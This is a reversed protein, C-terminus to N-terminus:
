GGQSGDSKSKPPLRFPRVEELHQRLYELLVHRRAAGRKGDTPPAAPLVSQDTEEVRRYISEWRHRITDHRIGLEEAIEKDSRGDLAQRLLRQQSASFKFQPAPCAFSALPVLAGSGFHESGPAWYFVSSQTPNESLPSGDTDVLEHQQYGINKMVMQAEPGFVEYATLHDVHYGAHAYQWASAVLALVATTEPHMPDRERVVWHTILMNLEHNANALAIANYDLLPSDGDLVRQWITAAVQPHPAACYEHRFEATVFVCNRFAVIEWGDDTSAEFVQFSAFAEDNMHNLWLEALSDHVEPTAQFGGDRELLAICNAFDDPRANRFRM